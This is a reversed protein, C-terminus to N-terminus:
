GADASPTPPRSPTKLSALERYLQPRKSISWLSILWQIRELATEVPNESQRDHLVCERWHKMQTEFMPCFIGDPHLISGDARTPQKDQLGILVNLSNWGGNARVSLVAERATIDLCGGDPEGHFYWFWDLFHILDLWGYNPDAPYGLSINNTEHDLCFCYRWNCAVMSPVLPLEPCQALDTIVPKECFIPKQAKALEYLLSAHNQAPTCVLISDYPRFDHQAPEFGLDVMECFDGLGELVGRHRRGM